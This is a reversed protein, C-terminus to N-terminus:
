NKINEEIQFERKWTKYDTFNVESTKTQCGLIKLEQKM